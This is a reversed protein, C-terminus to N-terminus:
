PRSDWFETDSNNNLAFRRHWDVGTAARFILEVRRGACLEGLLLFLLAGSSRSGCRWKLQELLPRAPMNGAAYASLIAEDVGSYGRRGNELPEGGRAAGAYMFGKVIGVPGGASGCGVSLIWSERGAWM